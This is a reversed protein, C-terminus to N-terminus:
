SMEAQIQASPVVTRNSRFDEARRIAEDKQDEYYLGAAIPHHTDHTENSLDVGM